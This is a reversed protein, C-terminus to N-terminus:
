PLESLAAMFADREADTAERDYLQDSDTAPAVGQEAALEQFSREAWFADPDVGFNLQTGPSIKSLRVRQAVLTDPDYAVEGHFTAQRRLADQIEDALEDDFSVIVAENLQGRLRATKREFDAEVLTGSLTDERIRPPQREIAERLRNATAQDLRAVRHVDRTKESYEFTVSEYREGVQVADALHVLAQAVNPHAEATAAAEVLGRVATEALSAVEFELTGEAHATDSEPLRLVPVVSGEEVAVLRLQAAQEIAARRGSAVRRRGLAVSASRTVAREVELLLRAVDSALVQGLKADAGDLKVRLEAKSDMALEIRESRAYSRWAM